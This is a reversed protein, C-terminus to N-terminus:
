IVTSGQDPEMQCAKIELGAARGMTGDGKLGVLRRRRGHPHIRARTSCLSGRVLYQRSVRSEPSLETKGFDLYLKDYIKDSQFTAMKALPLLESLRRGM